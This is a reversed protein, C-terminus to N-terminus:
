PGVRKVGNRDILFGKGSQILSCIIGSEQSLCRFRGVTVQGGYALTPASGPPSRLCNSGNCIKLAGDASMTVSHPSNISQCHVQTANLECSLNGTPSRLSAQTAGSSPGGSKSYAWNTSTFRTGNWRWTRSRTGGTPFCHADGPRLVNQTERIGSGVAALDAGGDSEFVLRWAPGVRKFVVWGGTRGCSPISLSFVMAKSGPGVFSGCRVQGVPDTVFGANGLHHQNALARATTKSCSGSLQAPSVAVAPRTGGGDILFGKGARSSTCTVGTTESLCRFPGFAVSKGYGLVPLNPSTKGICYADCASFKGDTSLSAGHPTRLSQCWLMSQGMECTLNGTPSRFVGGALTPVAPSVRALSRVAALLSDLSVGFSEIQLWTPKPGPERLVLLFGNKVGDAVTCKPGSLSCYVNIPVTQGDIDVTTVRVSEGPNGCIQPYAESFFVTGRGVHYRAGVTAINATPGGNACFFPGDLTAAGLPATPRYLPFVVRGAFQQWVSYDSASAVVGTVFVALGAAAAALWKRSVSARGHRGGKMSPVATAYHQEGPPVPM